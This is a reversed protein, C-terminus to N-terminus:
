YVIVDDDGVFEFDEANSEDTAGCREIRRRKDDKVYKFMMDGLMNKTVYECNMYAGGEDWFCLKDEPRFNRQLHSVLDGVTAIISDEEMPMVPMSDDSCEYVFEPM